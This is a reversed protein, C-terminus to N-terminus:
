SGPLRLTILAVEPRCNLRIPPAIVGIGRSTYVQLRSAGVRYLGAPYKRALWPLIPAGVGPLRVQGGHSHGSLQLVIWQPAGAAEDALDPEHALLLVPEEAPIGALTAPLDAKGECADDVGAIWLPASGIVLRQASNALWTLGAAEVERRVASVGAWHDHNGAIAWVGLPAHLAALAAACPPAYQAVHYVFDGTVAILDPALANAAEVAGGIEREGTYPGWHLDSLHGITLGDLAAPLGAVEVEVREVALWEPELWAAYGITGAGAATTAVMGRVFARRTM